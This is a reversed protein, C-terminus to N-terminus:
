RPYCGDSEIWVFLSMFFNKTALRVNDCYECFWGKINFPNRFGYFVFINIINPGPTTQGIFLRHTFANSPITSHMCPSSSILSNQNEILLKQFFNKTNITSFHFEKKAVSLNKKFIQLTCLFKRTVRSYLLCWLESSKNKRYLNSSLANAVLLVNLIGFSSLFRFYRPRLYTILFNAKKLRDSTLDNTSSTPLIIKTCQFIDYM